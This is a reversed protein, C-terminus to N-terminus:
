TLTTAVEWEAREIDVKLIDISEMGSTLEAMSCGAVGIASCSHYTAEPAARQLANRYDGPAIAHIISSPNWQVVTSEFTFDSTTGLSLVTLKSTSFIDCVAM